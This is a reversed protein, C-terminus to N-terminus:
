ESRVNEAGQRIVNQQKIAYSIIKEQEEVESSVTAITTKKKLINFLQNAFNDSAPTGSIDFAKHNMFDLYLLSHRTEGDEEYSIQFPM